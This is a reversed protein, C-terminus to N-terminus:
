AVKAVPSVRQAPEAGRVRAHRLAPQGAERDLEVSSATAATSAFPPLTVIGAISVGNPRNAM